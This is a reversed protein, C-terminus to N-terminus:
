SVLVVSSAQCRWNAGNSPPRERLAGLWVPSINFSTLHNCVTCVFSKQTKRGVAKQEELRIIIIKCAEDTFPTAQLILLHDSLQIWHQLKYSGIPLFPLYEYM